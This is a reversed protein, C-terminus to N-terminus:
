PCTPADDEIGYAARKDETLDSFVNACAYAMPDYSLEWLIASADNSGSLAYRGDPSFAVHQVLDTHGMFGALM